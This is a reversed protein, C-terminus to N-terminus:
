IAIHAELLSDEINIVNNELIEFNKINNDNCIKIAKNISKKDTLWTFKYDSVNELSKIVSFYRSEKEVSGEFVIKTIINRTKEKFELIDLPYPIFSVNNDYTSNKPFDKLSINNRSYVTAKKMFALSPFLSFLAKGIDRKINNYQSGLLYPVITQPPNNYLYFDHFLVIGPILSLHVRIFNTCDLSEVQYFFIDYHEKNDKIFATLYNYVNLGCFTGLCKTDTFIDVQAKEKLYPLVKTSFYYSKSGEVIPTFFAIKLKERDQM